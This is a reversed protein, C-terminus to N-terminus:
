SDQGSPLAKVPLEITFRTGVEPLSDVSLVGQHTKTIIFYSISMGLGTGAGPTKTTFFPEFIRKRVEESMGCGNDEIECLVKERQQHLRLTFRPQETEPLTSRHKEWFRLRHLMAQAGNNLLNLFVQQLQGAACDVWPLDPQYHRVIQFKRFDYKNKLNYNSAALDVAKDLLEALDHPKLSTDGQRSFNLMNHVIEAAQQGSSIATDLIRAIGREQLYDDLNDIDFHCNQAVQINKPLNPNLRQSLVQLNQLLGALPNNIEHAIGAAMSGVSLMKEQQIFLEEIQARETVNDILIVAGAIQRGSIPFISIDLQQQQERRTWSVRGLREVTRYRIANDIREPPLPLEGLLQPLPQRLAGDQSIGTLREAARNWQTVRKNLDIGILALPIANFTSEMQLHLRETHECSQQEHIRCSIADEIRHVFEQLLRLEEKHWARPHSCQAVGLLYPTGFRPTVPALLLSQCELHDTLEQPLPPDSELSSSRLTKEQLTLRLLNALQPGPTRERQAKRKIRPNLCLILNDWFSTTIDTAPVLWTLDCSFILRCANLCSQRLSELDEASRIARNLQEFANLVFAGTPRSHRKQQSKKPPQQQRRKELAKNLETVTKRQQAKLQQGPPKDHTPQDAM